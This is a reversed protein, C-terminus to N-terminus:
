DGGKLEEKIIVGNRIQDNLDKISKENENLEQKLQDIGKQLEEIKMGIIIDSNKMDLNLRQRDLDAKELFFNLRRNRESMRAIGLRSFRIEDSNLRRKM